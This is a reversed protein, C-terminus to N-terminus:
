DTSSGPLPSRGPGAQLDRGKGCERGRGDGGATSLHDGVRWERGYRQVRAGWSEWGGCASLREGM